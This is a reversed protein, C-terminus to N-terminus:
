NCLILSMLQCMDYSWQLYPVTYHLLYMSVFFSMSGGCPAFVRQTSCISSYM